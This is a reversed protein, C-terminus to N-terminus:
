ETRLRYAPIHLAPQRSLHIYRHPSLERSRWCHFCPLRKTSVSVTTITTQFFILSSPEAHRFGNSAPRASDQKKPHFLLATTPLRVCRPTDRRKIFIDNPIGKSGAKIIQRISSLRQTREGFKTKINKQRFNVKTYRAQSLVLHLEACDFKFVRNENAEASVKRYRQIIYSATQSFFIISVLKM